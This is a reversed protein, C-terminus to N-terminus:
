ISRESITFSELIQEKDLRISRVFELYVRLLQWIPVRILTWSTESPPKALLVIGRSTTVRRSRNPASLLLQKTLYKSLYRSINHLDVYRVDVIRGGGINSWAASLWSQPIYRDILIHFHPNGNQQFELVRIYKPSVGYKRKLYVLHPAPKLNCHAVLDFPVAGVAPVSDGTSHNTM